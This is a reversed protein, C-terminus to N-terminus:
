GNKIGLKALMKAAAEQEALKKNRGSGAEATGGPFVVEMHFLPEHESGERSVLRYQPVGLGLNHATEQLLTKADKPPAVNKDILEKWHENVFEVAQECGADIFIAGIVAECVDCLVNENSRIDESSVKMFKDLQLSLAVQAVTEKCVLGTFRQSLSGEPEAPFLRYLLSAISVGLVRDGLFELREYNADVHSNVSSHTLAKDLLRPNKFNHKLIQELSGDHSQCLEEEICISKIRDM